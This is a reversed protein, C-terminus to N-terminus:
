LAELHVDNQVRRQRCLRGTSQENDEGFAAGADLRPTEDCAGPATGHRCEADISGRKRGAAADRDFARRGREKWEFLSRAEMRSLVAHLRDEPGVSIQPREIGWAREETVNHLYGEVWL